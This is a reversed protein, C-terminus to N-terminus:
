SGVAAPRLLRQGHPNDIVMLWRGDPQRRLVAVSLGSQEIPSGDAAKGKMKWPSIHVALDGAVLVEHGAFEFRPAMAFWQQFTARVVAPDSVPRGPEFVVVANTEYASMVNELDANQFAASMREITALVQKERDSM